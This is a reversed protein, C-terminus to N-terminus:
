RVDRPKPSGKVVLDADAILRPDTFYSATFIIWCGTILGPARLREAGAAPEDEVDAPGEDAKGCARLRAWARGQVLQDGGQGGFM